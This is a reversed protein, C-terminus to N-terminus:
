DLWTSTFDNSTLKKLKQGDKEEITLLGDVITIDIKKKKNSLTFHKNETEYESSTIRGNTYFDSNIFYEFVNETCLCNETKLIIQINKKHYTTRNKKIEGYSSVDLYLLCKQASLNLGIVHLFALISIIKM